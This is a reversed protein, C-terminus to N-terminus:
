MKNGKVWKGAVAQDAVLAGENGDLHLLLCTQPDMEFPAAPPDFDETYRISRSIRLEDYDESTPIRGHLHASGFRVTSGPPKLEAADKKAPLKDDYHVYARRRGNIFLRADNNEGDVNWTLAIHYWKGAEFYVRTRTFGVGELSAILFAHNYRTTRGANDPDIAYAISIPAAKYLEVRISSGFAGGILHCDTASWGPRFWFEVTGRRHPLERGPSGAPLAVEVFRSALRTAKGFGARSEVYPKGADANVDTTVRTTAYKTFDVDFLRKPDGLALLFPHNADAQGGRVIKEIKVFAEVSAKKSRILEDTGGEISWVAHKVAQSAGPQSQSVNSAALAGSPEAGGNENVGWKVPTHKASVRSRVAEATKPATDFGSFRNRVERVQHVGWQLPPDILDGLSDSGYSRSAARLRTRWFASPLRSFDDLAATQRFRSSTDSGTEMAQGSRFRRGVTSFRFRGDKIHESPVENGEPDFLRVPRSSFYEVAETDVPLPFYYRRGASLGIGKPAIQQIANIDSRLITFDVEAGLDLEYVGTPVSEPIRLRYFLQDEYAMYWISQADFCRPKDLRDYVREIIELRAPNGHSDLLKPEVSRDGWNNVFVDLSAAGPKEKTLLIHTRQTPHPKIAVPLYSRPVGHEAMVRLANPIGVHIPGQGTMTVHGWENTSSPALKDFEVGQEQLTPYNRAYHMTAQAVHEAYTADGTDRWAFGFAEQLASSRSFFYELQAHQYRFKALEVLAKRALPDGTAVHYYYYASFVEGEKGFNTPLDPNLIDKGDCLVRRQVIKSGYALLRPDHDLEYGSGLVRLFAEPPYFELAKDVDGNMEKLMAENWTRAMDRSHLDGTLFYDYVFQIVDESSAFAICASSSDMKPRRDPKTDGFQGWVIPSHFLGQMMWGLPKSPTDYNSFFLNGCLRTYRRSYDFYKREGSRAYLIWMGRKLNYELSRALRHITPYWRGNKLEWPQASYPYMGWYLYGTAPFVRDGALVSRNFYDSIVAEERPFRKEDKPHIPGFVESRAIWGPDITAFIEERTAGFSAILVKTLPGLHPYLWIEHTKATGQANNAVSVCDNTEPIWDHGFYNKIIQPTRFDLEGSSEGDWLKISFTANSVRFAKPFQEAFGPVQAALGWRKSSVDAWDGCAGALNSVKADFGVAAVNNTSGFHPFDRQAMWARGNQALKQTLAARPDDHSSNFSVTAGKEVALPIDCGIDRFWLENTNETVILKHSLRVAPNGAYFHFYVVGTANTAGDATLYDGEVRIVAHRRGNNEVTLAKGRLLGRRGKSDLVYFADRANRVLRENDEFKGNGNVDLDLSEFCGADRRFFYRAAGTEVAIGDATELHKIDDKAEVRATRTLFYERDLQAKFDVQAWRLSGDEWDGAKVIQCPVAKGNGDVISFGDVDHFESRKFPVGFTVPWSPTELVAPRNLHIPIKLDPTEAAWAPVACLLAAGL